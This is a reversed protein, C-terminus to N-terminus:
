KNENNAKDSKGWQPKQNKAFWGRLLRERDTPVAARKTDKRDSGHEVSWGDWERFAHYSWDWGHSEFIDIVDSLYRAASNEPAWRIASFEGMYIPANYRKQFDIM